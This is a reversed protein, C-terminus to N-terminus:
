AASGAHSSPRKRRRAALVAAAGSGLLALTGPEPVSNTENEIGPPPDIIKASGELPLGQIHAYAGSSMFSGAFLPVSPSDLFFTVSQGAKFRKQHSQQFDFCVNLGQGSNDNPCAGFSLSPATTTGSATFSELATTNSLGGTYFLGLEDVFGNTLNQVVLKLDGDGANENTDNTITVLVSGTLGSCAGTYCASVTIPGADASTVHFAAGTLTLFLVYRHPLRLTM